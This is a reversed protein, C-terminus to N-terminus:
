LFVRQVELKPSDTHLFSDQIRTKTYFLMTKCVQLMNKDLAICLHFVNVTGIKKVNICVEM